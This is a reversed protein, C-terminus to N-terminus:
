GTMAQDAARARRPDLRIATEAGPGVKEVILYDASEHIVRDSDRAAHGHKLLFRTPFRRVTEYEAARIEIPEQCDPNGCECLVVEQDTAWESNLRQIQDNVERLLSQHLDAPSAQEAAAAVASRQSHRRKSSTSV